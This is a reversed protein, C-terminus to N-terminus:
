RWYRRYGGWWFTPDAEANPGAEPAPSANVITFAVFLVFIAILYCFKM